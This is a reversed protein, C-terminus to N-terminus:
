ATTDVTALLISIVDISSLQLLILDTRPDILVIASGSFAPFEIQEINLVNTGIMATLTLPMMSTVSTVTWSDPLSTISKESRVCAHTTISQPGTTRPNESRIPLLRLMLRFPLLHVDLMVLGSGMGLTADCTSTTRM